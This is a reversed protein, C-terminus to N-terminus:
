FEENDFDISEDDFKELAQDFYMKLLTSFSSYHTDNHKEVYDYVADEYFGAHEDGSWLDVAYCKSDLGNEVVSQCLTFYSDGYHSGLEVIIKPQFEKVLKYAFPLHGMWAQYKLSTPKFETDINELDTM